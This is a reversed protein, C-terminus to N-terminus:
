HVQWECNRDSLATLLNDELRASQFGGTIRCELGIPQGTMVDYPTLASGYRALLITNDPSFWCEEVNRIRLLTEGRPIKYDYFGLNVIAISGGSEYVCAAKCTRGYGYGKSAMSYNRLGIKQEEPITAPDSCFQNKEKLVDYFAVSGGNIKACVNRCELPLQAPLVPEFDGNQRVVNLQLEFSLPKNLGYSSAELTLTHKGLRATGIDALIIVTMAGPPDLIVPRTEVRLWKPTNEAAEIQIAYKQNAKWSVEVPVEAPVGWEARLEGTPPVVTLDGASVAGFGAPETAPKEEITECARTFV